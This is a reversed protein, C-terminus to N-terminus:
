AKASQAKFARSCRGRFLGPSEGWGRFRVTSAHARMGEVAKGMGWIGCAAKIPLPFGLQHPLMCVQGRHHAEHVIMYAFCPLARLGRGPGATAIFSRSASRPLSLGPWCRGFIAVITRGKSGPLQARWARPDLHELLLQNMRENVAYTEQMGQRADPTPALVPRPM